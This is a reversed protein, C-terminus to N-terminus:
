FGFLDCQKDLPQLNNAVRGLEVARMQENWAPKTFGLTHMQMDNKLIAIAIQKYSPARGSAMVKKSVEDPIDKSYCRKSWTTIYEKVRESACRGPTFQETRRQTQWYGSSM